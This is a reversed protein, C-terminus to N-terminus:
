LIRSFTANFFKEEKITFLDVGGAAQGEGSLWDPLPAEWM